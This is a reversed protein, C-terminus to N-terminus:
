ARMGTIDDYVVVPRDMRVGVSSFRDAVFQAFKRMNELSSNTILMEYTSLPMAGPIHGNKFEGAKRADLLIAGNQLHRELQSPEILIESADM